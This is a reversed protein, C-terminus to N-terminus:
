VLLSENGQPFLSRLPAELLEMQCGQVSTLDQVLVRGSVAQYSWSTTGACLFAFGFFVFSNPIYRKNFFRAQKQTRAVGDTLEAVDLIYVFVIIQKTKKLYGM